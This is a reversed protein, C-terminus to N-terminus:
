LISEYIITIMMRDNTLIEYKSLSLSNLIVFVYVRRKPNKSIKQPISMFLRLPDDLVGRLPDDLVGRLPDDM